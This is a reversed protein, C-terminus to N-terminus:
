EEPRLPEPQDAEAAADQQREAESDIADLYDLCLRGFRTRVYGPEPARGPKALKQARYRARKPDAIVAQLKKIEEQLEMILKDHRDDAAYDDVAAMGTRVLEALVHQAAGSSIGAGEAVQM